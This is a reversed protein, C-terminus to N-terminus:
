LSYIHDHVRVAHVCHWCPAFTLPNHSVRLVLTAIWSRWKTGELSQGKLPEQPKLLLAFCKGLPWPPFTAELFTAPITEFCVFSCINLFTLYFRAKSDDVRMTSHAQLVWLWWSMLVSINECYVPGKDWCPGHGFADSSCILLQQFGRLSATNWTALCAYFKLHSSHSFLM